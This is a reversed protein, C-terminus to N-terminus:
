LSLLSHTSLRCQQGTFVSVIQWSGAGESDTLTYRHSCRGQLADLYAEHILGTHECNMHVTGRHHPLPTDGKENPDALFNPLKNVAVLARSLLM